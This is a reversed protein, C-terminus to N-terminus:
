PTPDSGSAADALRRAFSGILARLAAALAAGTGPVAPVFSASWDIRTGGAEPTLVVTALYDRVPLGRLIRYSLRSPRDQEVIEERSALRGLGLCRIAGVGGAPRTPDWWSRVIMPGAWRSWSTADALLDFVAEPAAASRASVAYSSRGSVM